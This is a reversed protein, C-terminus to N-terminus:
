RFPQFHHVLRQRAEPGNGVEGIGSIWGSRPYGDLRGRGFQLERQADERAGVDSCQLINKRGYGLCADVAIKWRGIQGPKTLTFELVVFKFAQQSAPETAAARTDAAIGRFLCDDAARPLVPAARLVEYRALIM